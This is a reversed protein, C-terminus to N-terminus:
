IKKKGDQCTLSGLLKDLNLLLFIVEHRTLKSGEHHFFIYKRIKNKNNNGRIRKVM